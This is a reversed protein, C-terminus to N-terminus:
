WSLEGRVCRDTSACLIASEDRADVREPNRSPASSDRTGKLMGGQDGERGQACAASFGMDPRAM